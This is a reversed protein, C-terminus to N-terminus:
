RRRRSPAPTSSRRSCSPSCRRARRGTWRPSSAVAPPGTSRDLAQLGGRDVFLHDLDALHEYRHDRGGALRRAVVRRPGPDERGAGTGTGRRHAARPVRPTAAARRRPRGAARRVVRRGVLELVLGHTEEFVAGDEVRVGVLDDIDFFRRYNREPTAGTCSGTTSCMSSSTSRSARSPGRHSRSAGNSTACSSSEPRVPGSRTWSWSAATSCTPSRTGSCPCCRGERRRGGLRRRVCPRRRSPVTACRADVVLPQRDDAALHNPVIDLSPAWGAITCPPSSGRRARCPRRARRPVATPDSATTATPRDPSAESVPSLYLHSVRAHRAAWSTPARRRPRVGPELQVRYTAVLPRTVGPGGPGLVVAHRGDVRSPRGGLGAPRDDESSSPAATSCCARVTVSRAAPGVRTVRGSTRARGHDRRTRTDRRVVVAATM